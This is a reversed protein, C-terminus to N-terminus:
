LKLDTAVDWGVSVKDAWLKYQAYDYLKQTIAAHRRSTVVEAVIGAVISGSALSQPAVVVTSDSHSEDRDVQAVRAKSRSLAKM